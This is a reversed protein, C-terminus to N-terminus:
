DDPDDGFHHIAAEVEVADRRRRAHRGVETETDDRGCDTDETIDTIGTTM